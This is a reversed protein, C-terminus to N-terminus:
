ASHCAALAQRADAELDIAALHTQRIPGLPEPLDVKSRQALASPPSRRRCADDEVADVHLSRRGVNAIQAAAHAHHELIEFQERVQGHQPLTETPGIVTSPICRSAASPAHWPDAACPPVRRCPAAVDRGRQRAALLLADGDGACQRHLGVDHQEVFRGRREIGLRDALHQADHLAQGVFPHRHHDHGVLHIEGLADGIPHHDEVLPRTMSCPGGRCIKSRGVTGRVRSNRLWRPQCPSLRSESVGSTSLGSSGWRIRRADLLLHVMFIVPM